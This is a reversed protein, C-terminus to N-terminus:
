FFSLRDTCSRFSLCHAGGHFPGAGAGAAEGGEGRQGQGEDQQAQQGHGPGEGLALLEQQRPLVALQGLGGLRHVVIDHAMEGPVAGVQLIDGAAGAKQRRLPGIEVAAPLVAQEVVQPLVGQGLRHHHLGHQRQAPSLHRQGGAPLRIVGGKGHQAPDPRHVDLQPPVPRPPGIHGQDLGLRLHAVGGEDVALDKEGDRLFLGGGLVVVADQQQVGLLPIEEVARGLADPHVRHLPQVGGDM